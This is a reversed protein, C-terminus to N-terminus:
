SHIMDKLLLYDGRKQGCFLPVGTGSKQNLAIGLLM